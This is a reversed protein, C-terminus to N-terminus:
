SATGVPPFTSMVLDGKLGDPSAELKQLLTQDMFEFALYLRHRCRFVEELKM